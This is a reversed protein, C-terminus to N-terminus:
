LTHLFNRRTQKRTKRIKRIKRKGGVFEGLVQTYNARNKGHFPVAENTLHVGSEHTASLTLHWLLPNHVLQVLVWNGPVINAEFRFRLQETVVHYFAAYSAPAGEEFYAQRAARGGRFFKDIFKGAGGAMNSPNRKGIVICVNVEWSVQGNERALRKIEDVAHKHDGDPAIRSIVKKILHTALEKNLIGLLAVDAARVLEPTDPNCKVLEAGPDRDSAPLPPPPPLDPPAAAAAAAAAAGPPGRRLGEWNREVPRPRQPQRGYM